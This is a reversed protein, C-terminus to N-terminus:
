DVNIRYGVNIKYGMNIRYRVNIRYEVIDLIARPCALKRNL